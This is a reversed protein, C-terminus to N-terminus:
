KTQYKEIIKEVKPSFSMNFDRKFIDAYVLSCYARLRVYDAINTKKANPGEHEKMEKKFDDLKINLNDIPVMELNAIISQKVYAFRLKQDNSKILLKAYEEQADIIHSMGIGDNPSNPIIRNVLIEYNIFDSIPNPKKELPIEGKAYGVILLTLSIIAFLLRHKKMFIM